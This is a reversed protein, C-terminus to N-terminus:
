RVSGTREAEFSRSTKVGTVSLHDRSQLETPLANSQFISLDGSRRRDSGGLSVGGAEAPTEQKWCDSGGHPRSPAAPATLAPGHPDAPLGAQHHRRVAPRGATLRRVLKENVHQTFFQILSGNFFATMVTALGGVPGQVIVAGILVILDQPVRVRQYKWGTRDVILPALADYPPATGVGATM